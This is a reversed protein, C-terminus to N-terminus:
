MTQLRVLRSGTRFELLLLRDYMVKWLLPSLVSGQTIGITIQCVKPGSETDYRVDRDTFNEAVMSRLYRPIDLRELVKM